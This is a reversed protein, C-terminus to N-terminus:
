LEYGVGGVFTTISHGSGLAIPTGRTSVRDIKALQNYQGACEFSLRRSQDDTELRWVIGAALVQRRPDVINGRTKPRNASTHSELGIRFDMDQGYPATFPMILGFRYAQTDRLNVQSVATEGAVSAVDNGTLFLVANKYRSWQAQEFGLLIEIDGITRAIGIRFLAPDYFPIVSTSANFPVGFSDTSFLFSADIRSETKQAERYYVGITSERKADQWAIGGFPVVVPEINLDVSGESEADTLGIRLTGKARLSYYAGAGISIGFPLEAALATYIAPKEQNESYRLYTSQYSSLGKIRGFSGSPVYAAFGLNWGERLVINMGISNGQLDKAKSAREPSTSLSNSPDAPLDALDFRTVIAQFSIANKKSHVLLAPNTYAAFSTSGGATTANGIAITKASQGYTDFVNAKADQPVVLSLAISLGFAAKAARSCIM